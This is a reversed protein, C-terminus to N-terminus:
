KMGGVIILKSPFHKFVRDEQDGHLNPRDPSHHGEEEKNM